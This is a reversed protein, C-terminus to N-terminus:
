ITTEKFLQKWIDVTSDFFSSLDPNTRCLLEFNQLNFRDYRYAPLAVHEFPEKVISREVGFENKFLVPTYYRRDEPDYLHVNVALNSCLDRNKSVILFKDIWNSVLKSIIQYSSCNPVKITNSFGAMKLHNIHKISSTTDSACFIFDNTKFSVSLELIRRFFRPITNDVYSDIDFVIM